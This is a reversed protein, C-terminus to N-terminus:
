SKVNMIDGSYDVPGGCVEGAAGCVEVAAECVEGAAGCIQEVAQSLDGGIGCCSHQFLHPFPTESYTLTTPTAGM